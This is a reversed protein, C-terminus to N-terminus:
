RGDGSTLSVALAGNHQVVYYAEADITAGEAREWCMGPMLSDLRCWVQGEITVRAFNGAFADQLGALIRAGPTSKTHSPSM